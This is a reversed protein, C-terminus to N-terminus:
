QAFAREELATFMDQYSHNRPATGNGRFSRYYPRRGKKKKEEEEQGEPERSPERWAVRAVLEPQFTCEDLGEYM